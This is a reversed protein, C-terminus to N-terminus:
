AKQPAQWRTYVAEHDPDNEVAEWEGLVECAALSQDGQRPLVTIYYRGAAAYRETLPLGSGESDFINYAIPRGLRTALEAELDVLVRSLHTDVAYNWGGLLHGEPGNIPLQKTGLMVRELMAIHGSHARQKTWHTKVHWDTFIFLAEDGAYWAQGYRGDILAEWRRGGAEYKARLRPLDEEVRLGLAARVSQFSEGAEVRRLLQEIQRAKERVAPPHNM